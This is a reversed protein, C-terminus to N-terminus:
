VSLLWVVSDFLCSSLSCDSFLCFFDEMSRLSPWPLSFAGTQIDTLPSLFRIECSPTPTIPLDIVWRVGSLYSHLNRGVSQTVPILTLDRCTWNHIPGSVKIRHLALECGAIPFMLHFHPHHIGEDSRVHNNM